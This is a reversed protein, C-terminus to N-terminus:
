KRLDLQTFPFPYPPLHAIKDIPKTLIASELPIIGVFFLAAALGRTEVRELQCAYWQRGQGSNDGASRRCACFLIIEVYKIGILKNM